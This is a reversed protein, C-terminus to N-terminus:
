VVSKRDQDDGSISVAAAYENPYQLVLKSACLGGESYGMMGWATRDPSARFSTLVLNRVDTTLWTAVQPGNPINSCDPDHHGDVNISAAVLIFPHAENSSTLRQMVTPSQMAGLWTQPTGPTGPFLEVVPFDTHAFAPEFYQPPLWAMVSGTIKSETGIITTQYGNPVDGMPTFLKANPLSGGHAGGTADVSGKGSPQPGAAEIAGTSGNDGMLDSWSEYFVYYNNIWLLALLVATVQSMLVLGLRSGYKVPKPGPIRNWFVLTLVPLVVVGVIMLAFLSGSTLGM